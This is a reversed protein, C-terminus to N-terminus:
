SAVARAARARATRRTGAGAGLRALLAGAAVVALEAPRVWAPHQYPALGAGPLTLGHAYALSM